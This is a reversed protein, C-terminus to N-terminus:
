SREYIIMKSSFSTFEVRLHVVYAFLLVHRTKRTIHSARASFPPWIKMTSLSGFKVFFVVGDASPQGFRGKNMGM